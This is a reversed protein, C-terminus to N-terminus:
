LHQIVMEKVLHYSTKDRIEDGEKLSQIDQFLQTLLSYKALYLNGEPNIFLHYWRRSSPALICPIWPTHTGNVLRHRCCLSPMAGIQDFFKWSPLLLRILMYPLRF